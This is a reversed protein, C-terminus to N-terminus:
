FAGRSLGRSVMARIPKQAGGPEGWVVTVEVGQQAEARDLLAYSTMRRFRYSYTPSTSIGVLRGDKVVRDAHLTGIAYPLDAYQYAQDHRFLSAYVEELDAHNWELMMLQRAPLVAESELPELGERGIFDHDFTIRWSWGLEYPNSVLRHLHEPELSGAHRLWPVARHSNEALWDRYPKMEDAFVAPLFDSDIQMAGTEVQHVRRSLAGLRKIGYAAGSAVVADYVQAGRDRPGSLEYGLEGSVMGVRLVTTETAGITSRRFSMFGLDRVDSSAAQLVDRSAPGHVEFSFERPRVDELTVDEHRQQLVYALWQWSGTFVFTADAIRKLVGHTMVDGADNCMVVVKATGPDFDRFSNVVVRSLFRAADPGSVLVRDRASCDHIYCSQSWSLSEDQWGTYELPVGDVQAFGSSAHPGVPPMEPRSVIVQM